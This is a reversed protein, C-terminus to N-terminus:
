TDKRLQLTPDYTHPFPLVLLPGGGDMHHVAHLVIRCIRHVCQRPRPADQPQLSPGVPILPHYM